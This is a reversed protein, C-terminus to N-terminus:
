DNAKLRVAEAALEAGDASLRRGRLRTLNKIVATKEDATEDEKYYTSYCVRKIISYDTGITNIKNSYDSKSNLNNSDENNIMTTAHKDLTRQPAVAYRTM